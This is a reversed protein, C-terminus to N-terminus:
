RLMAMVCAVSAVRHPQHYSVNPAWGHQKLPRASRADTEYRQEHAARWQAAANHTLVQEDERQKCGGSGRGFRLDISARRGPRSVPLTKPLLGDIEVGAAGEQALLGFLMDGLNRIKEFSM